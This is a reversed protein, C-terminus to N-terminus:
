SSFVHAGLSPKKSPEGMIWDTINELWRAIVGTTSYKRTPTVTVKNMRLCVVLGHFQLAKAMGYSIQPCSAWEEPQTLITAKGNAEVYYEKGKEYLRIKAPFEKEYVSADQRNSHFLLWCNGKNDTDIMRAIGNPLKFEQNSFNMFLGYQFSNMLEALPTNNRM